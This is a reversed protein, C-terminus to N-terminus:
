ASPKLNKIRSRSPLCVAANSATSVAALMRIMLVGSCAGFVGMHSTARFSGDAQIAQDVKVTIDDLLADFDLPDGIWALIAERISAVYTIVPQAVPISLPVDQTRLTLSSFFARSLMATASQTTFSLAPMAQVTRGLHSSIAADLPEYIEALHAPSNTSALVAGGPKTIRRLEAIAAPIDPVHYRGHGM